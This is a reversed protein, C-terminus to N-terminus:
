QDMLALYDEMLAKVKKKMQRHKMEGSFEDPFVPDLVKMKIRAPAMYGRNPPLLDQTGTLCVPIVPTGTEVSLKFAGSYFRTMESTRSRHGEPFFLVFGNDSLTQGSRNLCDQWSFKEINMYNALGMFINYVPINFPWDRVAFCINYVPLMNMCYTDFFSRHNVVIIGPTEFQTDRYDIPEFIVFLRTFAQWVRGYMWICWRTVVSTSFGRVYKLFALVPLFLLLSVLTWIVILTILVMNMVLILLRGFARDQLRNTYFAFLTEM